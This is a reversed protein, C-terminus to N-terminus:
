IPSLGMGGKIPIRIIPISVGVLYQTSSWGRNYLFLPLKSGPVCTKVPLHLYLLANGCNGHGAFVRPNQVLTHRTSFVIYIMSIAVQSSKM